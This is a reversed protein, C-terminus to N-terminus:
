RSINAWAILLGEIMLRKNASTHQFKLAETVKDLFTYLRQLDIRKALSQLTPALDRNHAFDEIGTRSRIMDSVWQYLWQIPRATEDKYWSGAISVPDQEGQAIGALDALRQQQQQLTDDTGMARALLPAGSALSLLNDAQAPNDLQSSLWDRALAPEPREFRIVQCRSRITAPLRTPRATILLLLTDPQPEELTKLLSNAAAMNMSDAPNLLIIRKGGFHSHLGMHEILARIQDIRIAGGEDAPVIRTFDPHTDSDFLQCSKCAGCARGDADVASCLLSRALGLAFDYKGTGEAGTLLLAHALRNDNARKITQQWQAQQWPYFATM